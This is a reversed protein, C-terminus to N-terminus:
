LSNMLRTPMMPTSSMANVWMQSLLSPPLSPSPPLNILTVPDTSSFDSPGVLSCKCQYGDEEDQDDFEPDGTYEDEDEDFEAAKEQGGYAGGGNLPPSNKLKTSSPKRSTTRSTSNEYNAPQYDDELYGIQEIPIKLVSVTQGQLAIDHPLPHDFGCEKHPLPYDFKGYCLM